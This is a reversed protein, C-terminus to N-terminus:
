YVYANERSMLYEIHEVINESTQHSKSHFDLDNLAVDYRQILHRLRSFIHPETIQHQSCFLHVMKQKQWNLEKINNETAWQAIENEHYKDNLANEQSETLLWLNLAPGGGEGVVKSWNALDSYTQRYFYLSSFCGLWKGTDITDSCEFFYSAVSPFYYHFLGRRNGSFQIHLRNRLQALAVDFSVNLPASFYLTHEKPLINAMPDHEYLAILLPSRDLLSEVPTSLYLPEVLHGSISNYVEAHMNHYNNVLAFWNVPEGNCHSDLVLM